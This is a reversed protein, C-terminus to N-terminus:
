REYNKFLLARVDDKTQVHEETDDPLTVVYRADESDSEGWKDAHTDLLKMMANLRDGGAGGAASAPTSPTATETESEPEAETESEAEPEADPEESDGADATAGEGDLPDEAIADRHADILYQLADERRVHAYPGAKEALNERLSELASLQEETVTIEPM